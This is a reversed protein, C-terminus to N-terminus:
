LATTIQGLKTAITTGHGFYLTRELFERPSLGFDAAALAIGELVGRTLDEPTSETKYSFLRGREDLLSLDTFTGGIDVGLLFGRSM